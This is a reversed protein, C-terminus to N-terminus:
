KSTSIRSIFQEIKNFDEAIEDSREDRNRHDFFWFESKYPEFIAIELDAQNQHWELQIGGKNLPVVNPLPTDSKVLSAMLSICFSAVDARIKTAGYSNWNEPLRLLDNIKNRITFLIPSRDIEWTTPYPNSPTIENGSQTYDIEEVEEFTIMIKGGFIM